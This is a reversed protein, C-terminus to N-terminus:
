NKNYIFHFKGKNYYHTITNKKKKFKKRIALQTLKRKPQIGKEISIINMRDNQRQSM